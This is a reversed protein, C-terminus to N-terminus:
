GFVTAMAWARSRVPIDNEKIVGTVLVNGASTIHLRETSGQLGSAGTRLSIGGSGSLGLVNDTHRVGINGRNGGGKQMIIFPQFTDATTSTNEMYLTGYSDSSNSLKTHGTSANYVSFVESSSSISDTARIHLSGGNIWSDANTALRVKETGGAYMALHGEDIDAGSNGWNGLTALLHDDSHVSLRYTDGKLELEDTPSTSGIGVKGENNVRLGKGSNGSYVAFALRTSATSQSLDVQMGYANAHDNKFVGIWDDNVEKEVHFTKTPSTTGIGVKGDGRIRMINTNDRKRFDATYDNADNGGKVVMGFSDATNSNEVQLGIHNATPTVVSM